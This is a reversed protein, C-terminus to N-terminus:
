RRVQFSAWRLTERVVVVALLRRDRADLAAEVVLEVGDAVGAGVAVRAAFGLHGLGDEGGSRLDLFQPRSNTASRSVRRLFRSRMANPIIPSGLAKSRIAARSACSRAAFIEM